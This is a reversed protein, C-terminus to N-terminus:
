YWARVGLVLTTESVDDGGATALDATGGFKKGWNVGIYPAFERKVEYRLRLGASVDSVGSGVGMATDDKTYANLAIEPSLVLKQTLMMEYEATLNLKVQDNKGFSLSADTEFFYPSVGQVGFTAYNRSAGPVTDRSIGGQIDWFPSIAHSLLLRSETGETTTGVREGETDFKIKNIDKGIWFGGEWSLMKDGNLRGVEFKDLMLKTLIPDDTMGAFAPSLTSVSVVLFAALKNKINM